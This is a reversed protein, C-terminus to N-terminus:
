TLRFGDGAPEVRFATPWAQESEGVPTVRIEGVTWTVVSRGAAM